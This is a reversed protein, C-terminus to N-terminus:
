QNSCVGVQNNVACIHLPTNGSSNQSNMEAGYFILHELHQVLGRKCAQFLLLLSYCHKYM